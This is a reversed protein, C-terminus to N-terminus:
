KAAMLAVPAAPPVYPPPAPPPAYPALTPLAAPKPDLYVAKIETSCRACNEASADCWADPKGCVMSSEYSCCGTSPPLTTAQIEAGYKKALAASEETEAESATQMERAISAIAKIAEVGEVTQEKKIDADKNEDKVMNELPTAAVPLLEGAQESGAEALAVENAAQSKSEALLGALGKAAEAIAEAADADQKASDKLATVEGEKGEKVHEQSNVKALVADADKEIKEAAGRAAKADALAAERAAKTSTANAMLAEARAREQEAQERASAVAGAQQEEIKAFEASDDTKSALGTLNVFQTTQEDLQKEVVEVVSSERKSMNAMSEAGTIGKQADAQAKIAKAIAKKAAEVDADAKLVAETDEKVQASASNHQSKDKTEVAAIDEARRTLNKSRAIETEALKITSEESAIEKLATKNMAIEATRIDAAKHAMSAAKTSMDHVSDMQQQAREESSKANTLQQQAMDYVANGQGGPASDMIEKAAKEDKEAQELMSKATAMDKGSMESVMEASSKETQSETLMSKARDVEDLGQQVESKELKLVSEAVGLAKEATEQIAKRASEDKKVKDAMNDSYRTWAEVGESDPAAAKTEALFALNAGLKAGTWVALASSRRDQSAVVVAGATAVAALAFAAARHWSPRAARPADERLFPALEEADAASPSEVANAM